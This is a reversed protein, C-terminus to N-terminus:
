LCRSWWALTRATGREREHLQPNSNLSAGPPVAPSRLTHPVAAEQGNPGPPAAARRARTQVPSLLNFCFRAEKHRSKGSIQLIWCGSLTAEHGFLQRLRRRGTSSPAVQHQQQGKVSRAIHSCRCTSKSPPAGM